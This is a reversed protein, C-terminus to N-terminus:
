VDGRAADIAGTIAKQLEEVADKLALNLSESGNLRDCIMESDMVREDVSKAEADLVEWDPGVHYRASM